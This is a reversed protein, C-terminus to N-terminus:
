PTLVIRKKHPSITVDAQVKSLAAAHEATLGGSAKECAARIEEQRIKDMARKLIGATEYVPKEPRYVADTVSEPLRLLCDLATRGFNDQRMVDAGNALFLSVTLADAKSAARMLATQGDKDTADIKTGAYILRQAYAADRAYFLATRGDADRMNMDPKRAIVDILLDICINKAAYHLVPCGSIRASYNLLSPYRDILELIGRKDSCDLAQEFRREKFLPVFMVHDAAIWLTRGLFIGSCLIDQLKHKM